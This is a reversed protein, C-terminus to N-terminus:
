WMDAEWIRPIPGPLPGDDGSDSGGPSIPLDFASTDVPATEEGTALFQSKQGVVVGEPAKSPVRRQVRLPAPLNESMTEPLPELEYEEGHSTRGRVAGYPRAVPLPAVPLEPLIDEAEPDYEPLAASLDDEDRLVLRDIVHDPTEKRYILM